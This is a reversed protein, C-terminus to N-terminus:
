GAKRFAVVEVFSNERKNYYVVLIIYMALSCYSTMHLQRGTYNHIDGAYEFIGACPHMRM